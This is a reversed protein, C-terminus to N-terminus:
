HWRSPWPADSISPSNVASAIINSMDGFSGSLGLILFPAGLVMLNFALNWQGLEDPTLVRCLWVNCLFGIARQAVVMALLLTMGSAFSDGHALPPTSRSGPRNSTLDDSM